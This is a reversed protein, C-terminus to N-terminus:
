LVKENLPLCMSLQVEAITQPHFLENLMTTRGGDKKTREVSLVLSFYSSSFSYTTAHIFSTRLHHHFGPVGWLIKFTPKLNVEDFEM